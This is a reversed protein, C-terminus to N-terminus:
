FGFGGMGPFGGGMGPIGGGFGGGMFKDATGLNQFKGTGDDKMVSTQSPDYGGNAQFNPRGGPLVIQVKQVVGKPNDAGMMVQTGDNLTFIANKKDFDSKEGNPHDIHPDGWVRWEKPKGSQQAQQCGCGGALGGGMNSSIAIAGNYGPGSFAAAQNFQGNQAGFGRGGGVGQANGGPEKVKVEDGQWNITAGGPTTFSQGKTLEITGGQQGGPGMPGMPGMAGPGGMPGCGGPGGMPGGGPFGGPGGMPGGGPFGGGFGAGRQGQSALAGMMRGLAFMAGQMQQPNAGGFSNLGMMPNGFGGGLGGLPGGFNEFAGPSASFGDFGRNGFLSQGPGFSPVGGGMFPSNFLSSIGFSASFSGSIAM